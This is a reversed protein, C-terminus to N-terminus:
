PETRMTGDRIVIARDVYAEVRPDHTVIIAATRGRTLIVDLDSLLQHAASWELDATLEDALLLRPGNALAVALALRQTEAATLRGPRDGARPSLRMASLLDLASGLQEKRTGAEGLMPVLVNQLTTLGPLLGVEPEQWVYGVTKRRYAERQRRTMATVDQGVVTVVGRTPTELAALIRLLTTKGSGSRGMIALREGADLDFEIGRLAVVLEEGTTFVHGLDRVEAMREAPQEQQVRPQTTVVAM